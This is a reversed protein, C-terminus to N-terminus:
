EGLRAFRPRESPTIQVCVDRMWWRPKSYWGFVTAGHTDWHGLPASYWFRANFPSKLTDKEAPNEDHGIIMYFGQEGRTYQVGIELRGRYMTQGSHWRHLRPANHWGYAIVDGKPIIIRPKDQWLQGGHREADDRLSYLWEVL